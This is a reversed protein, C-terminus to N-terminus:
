FGGLKLKAVLWPATNKKLLPPVSNSGWLVLIGWIRKFLVGSIVGYSTFNGPNGCM